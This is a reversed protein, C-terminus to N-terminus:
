PRNTASMNDILITPGVIHDAAVLQLFDKAPFDAKHTNYADMSTFTAVFFVETPDDPNPVIHYSLTGPELHLSLFAEHQAATMFAQKDAPTIQSFTAVVTLVSSDLTTHKIIAPTTHTHGSQAVQPAHDVAAAAPVGALLAAGATVLAPILLRRM